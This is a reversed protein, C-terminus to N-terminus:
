SLSLEYFNGEQQNVRTDPQNGPFVHAPEPFVLIHICVSQKRSFFCGGDWGKILHAM